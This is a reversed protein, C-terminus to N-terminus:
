TAATIAIREVGAGAYKVYTATYGWIGVRITQPGAIEEFRFQTLASEFLTVDSARLVLISEPYQTIGDSAIIPLGQFRGDVQVSGVGMINAAGQSDVPVLPRGSTDKLKLLSGYRLVSSIILDAPLKRAARVAMATDVVYDGIFTAHTAISGNGTFAAENAYTKTASGAATVAAAVVKTEVKQDYVAILDAMILRDVTPDSMDLLQRSFNQAGATVTPTVTYVDTDYADTQAVADNEAAQAAVVNDTGASQYPITMPRPDSGLDIHAVAAAARRGQRNIPEFLETLWKPAVLGPGHAATTLARTHEELRKAAERDGGGLQSARFQDSFWSRTGGEAASRYHGPDRDQTRAKGGLREVGEGSEGSSRHQEGEEGGEGSEGAALEAALAAGKRARLEETSVAEIEGDLYELRSRHADTETRETATMPRTEAVIKDRVTKVKARLEDREGTLVELYTKSM